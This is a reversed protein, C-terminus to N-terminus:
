HRPTRHALSSPQLQGRRPVPNFSGNTGPQRHLQNPLRPATAVEVPGSYGTRRHAPPPTRATPAPVGRPTVGRPSAISGAGGGTGPVQATRASQPLPLAPVMAPSLPAGTQSRQAPGTGTPTPARPGGGQGGFRSQTPPTQPAGGTAFQQARSPLPHWSNSSPKQGQLRSSQTSLPEAHSDLRQALQPEIDKRQEAFARSASTSTWSAAGVNSGAPTSPVSSGFSGGNRISSVSSVTALRRPEGATDLLKPTSTAHSLGRDEAFTGDFSPSSATHRPMQRPSRLPAAQLASNSRSPDNEQSGSRFVQSVAKASDPGLLHDVNLQPVKGCEVVIADGFPLPPPPRHQRSRQKAAVMWWLRLILHLVHSTEALEAKALVAHLSTRRDSLARGLVQRQRQDRLEHVRRAMQSRVVQRERAAAELASADAAFARVHEDLLKACGARVADEVGDRGAAQLSAFVEEVLSTVATDFGQVQLAVDGGSRGSVAEPLKVPKPLVPTPPPAKPLAEEGPFATPSVVPLAAASFTGGTSDAVTGTRPLSEASSGRAKGLAKLCTASGTSADKGIGREFDRSTKRELPIRSAVDRVPM